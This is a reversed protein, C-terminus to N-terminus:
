RPISRHLFIQQAKVLALSTAQQRQSALAGIFVDLSSQNGHGGLIDRLQEV